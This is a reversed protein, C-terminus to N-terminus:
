SLDLHRNMSMAVQAMEPLEVVEVGHERLQEVGTCNTVFTAPERWAIVVRSVGARLLRQACPLRNATARQACPELTSYVTASRLRPDDTELKDLAAEEAHVKPHSERSYGHAIATGDSVIVAGVSFAADSPPCRKALEVAQTMWLQDTTVWLTDGPDSTTENTLYRLLAIDGIQHVSVLRMRHEPGGPYDAPGLLRPAESEGVLTPAVALQLEDALGTALFGTHIRTGGEAMLRRVGRRGLDDLLLQLDLETGLVVVEALGHLRTGIRHAGATTTYVLKDGGHHWFRLEPDLDGSETVTVKLPYEPKGAAIRAARRTESNVVLRPNDRRVTQAGVLVADSDAREQDVRDFDASNSLLLRQPGMDDIHGDISAAVSLLVYPRNM